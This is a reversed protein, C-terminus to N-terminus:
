AALRGGDVTLTTGHVYDAHDSALYVAAAAIEDPAPFRWEGHALSISSAPSAVSSLLATGMTASAARATGDPGSPQKRTSAKIATLAPAKRSPGVRHIRIASARELDAGAPWGAPGAFVCWSVGHEGRMARFLDRNPDTVEM